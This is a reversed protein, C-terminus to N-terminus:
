KVGRREDDRGAEYGAYGVGILLVLVMICVLVGLLFSPADM